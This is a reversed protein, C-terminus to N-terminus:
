WKLGDLVRGIGGLPFLGLVWAVDNEGARRVFVAVGATWELHRREAYAAGLRKPM